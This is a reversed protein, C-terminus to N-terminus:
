AARRAARILFVGAGLLGLPVGVAWATLNLV